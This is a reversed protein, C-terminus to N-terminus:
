EFDFVDFVDSRIGLITFTLYNYFSWVYVRMSMRVSSCLSFCFSRM